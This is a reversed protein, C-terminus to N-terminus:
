DSGGEVVAPSAEVVQPQWLEVKAGLREPDESRFFVGGVGLAKAM